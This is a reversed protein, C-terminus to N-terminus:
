DPAEPDPSRTPGRLAHSRWASPTMGTIEKFARNFPGLSAYGLDFALKTIAEAAADPDALREKAAEIRRANLFAAFNRHGLRDNVLRRLRHEPTGVAEALRGITLGERRWIEDGAMLAELKALAVRDRPALAGDGSPALSPTPREFLGSRPHLFLVAGVLALVALSAAQALGAWAVHLGLYEAIEWGSLLIAYVGILGLFPARFSRRSAVLDDRHSAWVVWLVHGVLAVELANHVIWAGNAAARPLSEAVAALATLGAAPTLRDWGFPRDQFLTVAFLWFWGTGGASLLWDLPVLPGLAATEPGESHLTFAAVSLCFVAGTVRAASGRGGALMGLGTALM